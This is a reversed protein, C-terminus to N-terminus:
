ALEARLASEITPASFNFSSELLRRPRVRQSALITDDAMQGLALRMAFKPVTFMSPRGLVTGLVRTFETNTVPNPAVLNVPGSLSTNRLLLAIAATYDTLGIWSMWQRGTGLRGGAGLRFPLLLKGVVGGHRSLVLGTRLNVVRIGAASAPTAAAEWEQCVSALFDAGLPSDEDLTDDGRDGYIGIASGSLMISPKVALSAIASSLLRTGNVRSDRIRRKTENTWRQSLNEGALHIVADVGELHAADISNDEPNWAIELSTRAARRVLRRVEHGHGELFRVVSAGILGSAGSVAIVTRPWSENSHLVPNTMRDSRDVEAFRARNYRM